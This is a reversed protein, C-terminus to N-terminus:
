LINLKSLSADMAVRVHHKHLHVAVLYLTDQPVPYGLQLSRACTILLCVSQGFVPSPPQDGWTENRDLNGYRHGGVGYHNQGRIANRLDARSHATGRGPILRSYKHVLIEAM